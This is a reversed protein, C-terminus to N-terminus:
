EKKENPPENTPFNHMTRADGGWPMTKRGVQPDSTFKTEEVMWRKDFKKFIYLLEYNDKSQEGVQEGTGIKLDRYSWHEKTQIQLVNGDQEIGTVEMLVLESDLAIGMDLRVGILGTLRNGAVTNLGVVSDILRIDCRRYAESVVENYKEILAHAEEESVGKKECSTLIIIFFSMLLFWVRM